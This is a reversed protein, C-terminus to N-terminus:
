YQLKDPEIKRVWGNTGDKLNFVNSEGEERLKKVARASRVGTRCVFVTKYDAGPNKYSGNLKEYPINVAGPIKVIEQEVPNRVDIIKIKEGNKIAADLEEPNIAWDDPLPNEIVSHTACFVETDVLSTIEPENGCVICSPNKKLKIKQLSLDLADYLFLKGIAPEGIDLILKIAETAQMTGITGPLVGFVGGEGCTPVLGPPPPTPFICRYCPGEQAAFVSVQGEFQYISGYVFPKNNLVCYDNVLYRTSFNDSGDIIIDFDDAIRNANESSFYEQFTEIEIMPNLDQLRQRASEVKPVGVTKSGHVVQRQLNSEDVVDFDVLGLRGIGAAALYLSIPSGLGGLGVILVSASKLKEQGKLGVDPIMLHRSYRLIEKQSLTTDM